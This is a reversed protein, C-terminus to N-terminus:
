PIERVNILMEAANAAYDRTTGRSRLAQHSREPQFSYCLAPQGFEAANHFLDHDITRGGAVLIARRLLTAQEAAEEDLSETWQRFGRELTQGTFPAPGTISGNDVQWCMVEEGDRLVRARTPGMTPHIGNWAYVERDEVTIEYRRECDGRKIHALTLGTLDHVHTCQQRMDILAGIDSARNILPSGVLAQLPAQAGSCTVWPPRPAAMRVATICVGDHEITVGFHHFDDELWGVVQGPTVQRLVILRRLCGGRRPFTDSM